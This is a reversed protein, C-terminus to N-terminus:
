FQDCREGERVKGGVMGGETGQWGEVIEEVGLYRSKIGATQGNLDTPLEECFTRACSCSIQRGGGKSGERGSSLM